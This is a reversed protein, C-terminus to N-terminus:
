VKASNGMTSGIIKERRYDEASGWAKLCIELDDDWASWPMTSTASFTYVLGKYPGLIIEV